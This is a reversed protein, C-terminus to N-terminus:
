LATAVSCEKDNRLGCIHRGIIGDGFTTRCQGDTVDYQALTARLGVEARNAQAKSETQCAAEPARRPLFGMSSGMSALCMVGPVIPASM